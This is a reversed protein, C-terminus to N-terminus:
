RAAESEAPYEARFSILLRNWLNIMGILVTLDVMEKETFHRRLEEYDADPAHAESIRTVAETWALAARERPTYLSSESWASVEFYAGAVLTRSVVQSKAIAARRESDISPTKPRARAAASRRQAEPPRM